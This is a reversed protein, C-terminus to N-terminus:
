IEVIDNWNFSVVKPSPPLMSLSLPISWQAFPIASSIILVHCLLYLVLILFSPDVSFQMPTVVGKSIDSELLLTPDVLYKIPMVVEEVMPQIPHSFVLELSADGRFIPIIDTSSQMSVVVPQVHHPVVLDLSVDGVFMPSTETLSQMSMVMPQVPHPSVVSSDFGSPGELSFWAEPIRTTAPCFRTLHSGECTGCLFIAKHRVHRPNEIMHIGGIHSTTAPSLYGVHSTSTPSTHATHSDTLLSTGGDHSATSPQQDEAHSASTGIDLM